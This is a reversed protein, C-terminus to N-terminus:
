SSSTFLKVFNMFNAVNENGGYDWLLVFTFNWKKYSIALKSAKILTNSVGETM